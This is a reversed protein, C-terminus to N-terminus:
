CGREFHILFFILDEITVASDPQAQTPDGDDDLDADSAGREFQDLFYLLDNITIAGDSNGSATGDDLDAPCTLDFTTVTKTLSNAILLRRDSLALHGGTPTSWVSEHTNLDIAHTATGTQVFLHSNTLIMNGPAVTESGDSPWQWLPTGNELSLAAVGGSRPVYVVGNAVAPVGAFGGTISWNIPTAATPNISCLTTGARLIINGDPALTPIVGHPYAGNLDPNPITRSVTMTSRSIVKLGDGVYAYVNNADVAPAWPFQQALALFRSASTLMDIEYLGGYYGGNFYVKGGGGASAIPVPGWGHSWQSQYLTAFVQQGTAPNYKRLYPAETCTGGCSSSHLGTTIFLSGDAYTPERFWLGTLPAPWVPLGTALSLATLTNNSTADANITVYTSVFVRGDGVAVPHFAFYQSPVASTWTWAHRFTAPDVVIPVHGTQNSDGNRTVWPAALATSALMAPIVAFSGFANLSM